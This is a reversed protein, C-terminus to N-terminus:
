STKNGAPLGDEVIDQPISYRQLITAIVKEFIPQIADDPLSMIANKDTTRSVPMQVELNYGLLSGGDSAKLLMTQGDIRYNFGNPYPMFNRYATRKASIPLANDSRGSTPDAIYVNPIDYGTPLAIPPQILTVYWELTNPNQNSIAYSSTLLWSEPVELTGTFKASEYMISKMVHPIASDIYLIIESDTISFDDGPFDDSLHKKIREVLSQKTYPLSAM